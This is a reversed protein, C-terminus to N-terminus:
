EASLPLKNMSFWEFVHKTKKNVIELLYKTSGYSPFFSKNNTFLVLNLMNAAYQLNNLFGTFSSSRDNVRTPFRM